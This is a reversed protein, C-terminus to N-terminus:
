RSLARFALRPWNRARFLVNDAQACEWTCACRTDRIEGRLARAAPAGWLRGLDWDVDNLNGLSRGLIECPHVEGNEFVVASLTGATCPPRADEGRAFAAVHEYMLDDRAAAVRALPFRFYPLVRERQLARKREVVEEYRAIDVDLLSPDLATGRALNITINDPRLERAHEEVHDALVDQNERTVCVLVGISLRAADAPRPGAALRARQAQLARVGDQSRAHGGPIQRIADHVAPPGDFSVSVTLHLDRNEALVREVFAEQREPLLGNTPVALHRLGRSGFARAVDALDARLFPEGGGLSVWLLPGMRATSAALQEFEELSPGPVSEAVEKWHFCHRCRLNCAGTVFLTLHVPPGSRRLVRRAFPLYRFASV